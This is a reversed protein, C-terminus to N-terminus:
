NVWSEALSILARRREPITTYRDNMIYLDSFGFQPLNYEDKLSRSNIEDKDRAGGMALWLGGIVCATDEDPFYKGKGTADEKIVAVIRDAEKRNM